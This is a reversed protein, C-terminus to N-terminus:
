EELDFRSNITTVIKPLPEEQDEHRVMIGEMQFSHQVPGPIINIPDMSHTSYLRQITRSQEFGFRQAVGKYTVVSGDDQHIHIDVEVSAM